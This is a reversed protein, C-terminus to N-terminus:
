QPTSSRLTAAPTAGMKNTIMSVVQITLLGILFGPVMADIKITLMDDFLPWVAAIIGGILIGCCAGYKNVSKSYLSLLILPGFSSGLGSWAYLVLKFISGVKAYAIIFAVVAVCFIGLRSVFLLRKSSAQQNIFKKYIDETITSCLVLMQSSMVNITSAIVACLILGVLFPHFTEKVMEIFVTEPHALGNTFFAIGVLGVATAGVLSLLMWSMGVYQSKRIEAVHQIGMFKTIIHPQGFYGLGWGFSMSIVGLIGALDLTPVMSLSLQKQLIQAEIVKWGGLQMTIYVPVFLIISLLFIGQVLDLWALAIYGGLSVYVVVIVVGFSIGWIYDIGFLSEALIGLGVLGACVYVSYFIICFFASLLCVVGSDDKLRKAFFSSFTSCELRETLVRIKPAVVQWNFWMCILLGVAVWSLLLGGGFIVAPYGMFLWSSMDSAHAAMATLWYNMSRSGLIFDASSHVKRSSWVGIGLIVLFYSLLAAFEYIMM